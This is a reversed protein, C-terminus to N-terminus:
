HSRSLPSVQNTRTLHSTLAKQSLDMEMQSKLTWISMEMAM